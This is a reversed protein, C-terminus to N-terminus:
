EGTLRLLQELKGPVTERLDTSTAVRKTAYKLAEDLRAEDVRRKGREVGVPIVHLVERLCALRALVLAPTLEPREPLTVWRRVSTLPYRNARYEEDFAASPITKSNAQYIRFGLDAMEDITGVFLLSGERDTQRDSEHIIFTNTLCSKAHDLHDYIARLDTRERVTEPPLTDIAWEVIASWAVFAFLRYVLSALFYGDDKSDPSWRLWETVAKDNRFVSDIRAILGVISKHLQGLSNGMIASVATREELKIRRVGIRYDFLYKAGVGLLATTIGAAFAVAASSDIV